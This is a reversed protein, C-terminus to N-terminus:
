TVVHVPRMGSAAPKKKDQIESPDMDRKM